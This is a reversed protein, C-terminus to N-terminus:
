TVTSLGGKKGYHFQSVLRGIPHRFVVVYRVVNDDFLPSGPLNGENAIFSYHESVRTFLKRQQSQQINLRLAAQLGRDAEKDGNCNHHASTTEGSNIM